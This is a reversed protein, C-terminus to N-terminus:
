ASQSQSCSIGNTAWGTLDKHPEWGLHALHTHSHSCRLHSPAFGYVTWKIDNENKERLKANINGLTFAFVAFSEELSGSSYYKKGKHYFPYGTDWVSILTKRKTTFDSKWGYSLANCPHLTLKHHKASEFGKFERYVMKYHSYMDDGFSLIADAHKTVFRIKRKLDAKETTLKATHLLTLSCNLEKKLEVATQATGPLTGVVTKVNELKSLQGFYIKYEDAIWSSNSVKNTRNSELVKVTGPTKKSLRMANEREADLLPGEPTTSTVRVVHGRKLFKECLKYGMISDPSESFRYLLMLIM